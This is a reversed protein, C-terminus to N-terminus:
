AHPHDKLSCQMREMVLYGQGDPTPDSGADHLVACARLIAPHAVRAMKEAQDVLNRLSGRKVATGPLDSSDFTHVPGNCGKGLPTGIASSPAQLM